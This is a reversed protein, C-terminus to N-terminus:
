DYSNVLQQYWKQKRIYEPIPYRWKGQYWQKYSFQM